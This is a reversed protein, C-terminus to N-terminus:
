PDSPPVMSGTSATSPSSHRWSTVVRSRARWRKSCRYRPAKPWRPCPSCRSAMSCNSLTRDPEPCGCWMTSDQGLGQTHLAVLLPGDGIISLRMRHQHQPLMERLRAFADVLTPVPHVRAVTGIVFDRESWPSLGGGRAARIAAQVPRHRGRVPVLLLKKEPIGLAGALWRHLDDSVPVFRDILPGLRRRLIGSPIKERPIPLTVVVSGMCVFPM